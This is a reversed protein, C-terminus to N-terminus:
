KGGETAKAALRKERALLRKREGDRDRLTKAIKRADQIAQHSEDAGKDIAETVEIDIIDALKSAHGLDVIGPAIKAAADDDKKLKEKAKYLALLGIRTRELIEMEVAIGKAKELGPHKPSAGLGVAEKIGANILDAAGQASGLQPVPTKSQKLADMEKAKNATNLLQNALRDGLIQRCKELLESNKDVGIAVATDILRQLARPELGEEAQHVTSKLWWDTLDAIFAKMTTVTRHSKSLGFSSVFSEFDSKNADVPEGDTHIYAASFKKNQLMEGPAPVDSIVAQFIEEKRAIAKEFANLRTEMKTVLACKRRAVALVRASIVATAHRAGGLEAIPEQAGSLSAIAKQLIEQTDQTDKLMHVMLSEDAEDKAKATGDAPPPAEEEKLDLRRLDYLEGMLLLSRKLAMKKLGEESRSDVLVRKEQVPEDAFSVRRISASKKPSVPSATSDPSSAGVSEPSVPSTPIASSAKSATSVPSVPNSDQREVRASSAVLAGGFAMSGPYSMSVKSIERVAGRLSRPTKLQMGSGLLAPESASKKLNIASHLRLGANRVRSPDNGADWSPALIQGAQLTAPRRSLSKTQLFLPVPGDEFSQRPTPACSAALTRGRVGGASEPRTRLLTPIASGVRARVPSSSGASAGLPADTLLEKFAIPSALPASLVTGVASGTIEM